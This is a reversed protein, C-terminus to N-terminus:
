NEWGIMQGGINWTDDDDLTICYAWESGMGTMM